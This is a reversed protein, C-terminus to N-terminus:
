NGYKGNTSGFGTAFRYAAHVLSMVIEFEADTRPAYVVSLGRPLFGMDALPHPECWGFNTAQRAIPDPLVMHLTTGPAPHLHCFEHSCIFAKAGASAFEDPIWFARVARDAIQSEREQVHPLQLIRRGIRDAMDSPPFQEAQIHPERCIVPRSGRRPVLEIVEEELAQM